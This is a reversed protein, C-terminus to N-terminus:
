DYAVAYKRELALLVLFALTISFIMIYLNCFLFTLCIALTAGIYILSVQEHSLKGENLRKFYFSKHPVIISKGLTLRRILTILVDGLLPSALLLVKITDVFNNTQLVIGLFLAGLFTSGVDGMFLKSPHWNLFLFGLLCGVIPWYNFDFYISVSAFILIMCGVLLGDLGDGFNIFNICATSIFVFLFMSILYFFINFSSFILVNLPSIHILAIVTVIQAALRFIAKLEYKDDILGVISLPLCILPILFNNLVGFTTILIVFVLGAGSPKAINHSSRNNPEILFYRKLFPIISYTLFYTSIISIVFVIM